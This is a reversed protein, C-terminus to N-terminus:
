VRWTVRGVRPGPQGAQIPLPAAVSRRAPSQALSPPLQPDAIRPGAKQGRTATESESRRGIIGSPCCRLGWRTRQPFLWTGVSIGRIDSHWVEGPRRPQAQVSEPSDFSAYDSCPVVIETPSSAHSDITASYSSRPLYTTSVQLM